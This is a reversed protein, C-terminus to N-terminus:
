NSCHYDKELGRVATTSAYKITMASTTMENITFRNSINASFLVGGKRNM